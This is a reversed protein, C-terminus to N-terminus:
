KKKFFKPYNKIMRWHGIVHLIMLFLTIGAFVEHIDEFEDGTIYTAVFSILLLIGIIASLKPKM